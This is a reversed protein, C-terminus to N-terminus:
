DGFSQQDYMEFTIVVNPDSILVAGVMFNDTMKCIHGAM